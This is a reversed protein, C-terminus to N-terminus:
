RLSQTADRHLVQLYRETTIFPWSLTADYDANPKAAIIEDLSKGAKVLDRVRASTVVLMERYAVLGARDTVKGHGPIIRTKDDAIALMADVAAILGTVSGGSDLDIFPYMGAFMLDGTHIVNANRFHVFVDGDTHAQPFHIGRLDDGNVHLSLSDSFTVVPLAGAPSAPTNKKFYESFQETSMRLRVQDHAVIVSGKAALNENGGTHDGHWHTNLVFRPPDRSIRSLAELVQPTVAAYQDDILFVGDRGASVGINGGSGYLVYVGPTVGETTVTGDPPNQALAVNMFAALLACVISKSM